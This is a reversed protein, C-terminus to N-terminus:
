HGLVRHLMRDAIGGSRDGADERRDVYHAVRVMANIGLWRLPEPEWRRSRHGVWALETRVTNRDTILDALTHGALASAAVGEGVYGGAWAWGRRPDLGVCPHWDRAIGLPGGWHHTVTAKAVSPYLEALTAILHHRTATHADFRPSINSSFHYPAGRGGFAFRGEATRQGYIVGRRADNFVERDALGIESWHDHSLPETAIMMSYVPILFRRHRPLQVTYAETARVVWRAPIRGGVTTVGHPVMSQVRVGEAIIGGRREVAAALGHILRGPHFAATQESFSAGRLRTVRTRTAAEDGDMWRMAREDFGHRRFEDVGHRLRQEQAPNRAFQLWGGESWQADINERECVLRIAAVADVLAGRWRRAAGAGHRADVTDLSLPIEPTCWGGNRGSAGFGVSHAELVVVRRSPDDVLLRYATWLGTFGAGIVVVDAGEGLTAHDWTRRTGSAEIGHDHWLVTNTTM